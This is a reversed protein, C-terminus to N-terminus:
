KQLSFSTNARLEYNLKASPLFRLRLGKIDDATFDEVEEVGASHLTARFTGFDPFSVSHGNLCFSQISKVIATFVAPIQAVPIHANEAMAAYLADTPITPAFASIKSPSYIVEKTLPNKRQILEYRITGM